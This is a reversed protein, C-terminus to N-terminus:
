TGFLLGLFPEIDLADITGDGNIDANDIDCDPFQAPFGAPDFLAVLFPEIDLANIVGDCNVDGAINHRLIVLGNSMDSILIRQPGLLPYVGWATGTDYQGVQVFRGANRDIEFILCGLGYWSCYVREGLMIPNHATQGAPAFEDRLTVTVGPGDPTIEYLKIGGSNREEATVVFRGDDTAWASHASTGPASGLLVPAQNAIDSVDFIYIGDWGGAYIFSKIARTTLKM